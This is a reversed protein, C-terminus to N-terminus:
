AASFPIASSNEGTAGVEVSASKRATLGSLFIGARFSPSKPMDSEVAM